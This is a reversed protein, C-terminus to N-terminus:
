LIRGRRCSSGTLCARRKGCATCFELQYLERNLIMIYSEDAKVAEKVSKAIMVLDEKLDRNASLALSVESINTLRNFNDNQINSNKILKKM